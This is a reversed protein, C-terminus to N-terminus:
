SNFKTYNFMVTELFCFVFLFYMYFNLYSKNFRFQKLVHMMNFTLSNFYINLLCVKKRKKMASKKPKKTEQESDPSDSLSSNSSSDLKLNELDNRMQKQKAVNFDCESLAVKM